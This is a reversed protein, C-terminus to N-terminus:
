IESISFLYANVIFFEVFVPNGNHFKTSDLRADQAGPLSNM